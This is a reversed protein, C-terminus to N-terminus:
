QIARLIALAKELKDASLSQIIGIAEQQPDSAAEQSFFYNYVRQETDREDREDCHMYIESTEPNAHRLHQQTLYLNKTAKYVGTGSTHRLSHATLRDSDYGAGKLMDKFITSITTTAIRGDHYEKIPNGDKDVILNGDRDKKYGKFTGPKSRNSSSVFLPSKGTPKDTRSAIYVQLAEQVEQPLLVPTDPESHGKGWTYLYTRGGVTKIDELNARSIEVTRLGDVIGLLFMAYLRKGQETDRDITASIAQVDDRSLADKKHHQRDVKWTGKIGQAANGTCLGEASAWDFMQKVARLYQTKTGPKLDSGDLYRVYERIDARTPQQIGQSQAWRAFAKLCVIYGKLTSNKVSCYEVFSTVMDPAQLDNRPLISLAESM